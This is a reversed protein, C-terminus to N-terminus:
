NFRISNVEICDYLILQESTIEVRLPNVKGDPLVAEVHYIGKAPIVQKFALLPFIVKGKVETKQEKLEQISLDIEYPRELLETVTSFFGKLIMTRIYSSSIREDEDTGPKYYVPEVFATQVENKEAWYRIASVDTAGKYGCRFDVGECLLKLNVSAKLASLFDAGSASAFASDFDCLVVFEIGVEEFLGLRQNLTTLDGQYDQSHKISPLPRSFSFVGPILKKSKCSDVLTKLLLRHGQHLGDFSGISIGSGKSDASSKIDEWYFIKM